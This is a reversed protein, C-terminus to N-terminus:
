VHYLLKLSITIVFVYKWTWLTRAAYMSHFIVKANNMHDMGLMKSSFAFTGVVNKGYVHADGGRAVRVV